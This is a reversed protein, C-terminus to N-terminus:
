GYVVVVQRSLAALAGSPTWITARTNAYCAGASDTEARLYWWGDAPEDPSTELLEV